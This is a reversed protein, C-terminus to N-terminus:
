VHGAAAIGPRSVVRRGGLLLELHRAADARAADCSYRSSMASGLLVIGTLSKEAPLFEAAVLSMAGGGSHGILWVPRGPYQRRYEVVRGAIQRAVRRNRQWARLHYVALLFCGTTWDVIEMAYPLGADLLGAMLSINLFSRGEIGPLILVLGRDLREPELRKILRGRCLRGIPLVLFSLSCLLARCFRRWASNTPLTKQLTM